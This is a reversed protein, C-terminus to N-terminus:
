NTPTDAGGVGRRKGGIERAACLCLNLVCSSPAKGATEAIKSLVKYCSVFSYHDKGHSQKANEMASSLSFLCSGM